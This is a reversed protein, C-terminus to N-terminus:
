ISQFIRPDRIIRQCKSPRIMFSGGVHQGMCGEKLVGCLLVRELVRWIARDVLVRQSLPTGFVAIEM